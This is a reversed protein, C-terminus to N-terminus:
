TPPVTSATIQAKSMSSVAEAGSQSLTLTPGPLNVNRGDVNVSYTTAGDPTKIIRAITGVMTGQADKVPLGTRFGTTASADAGPPTAAPPAPAATSKAPPTVQMNAPKQQALAGSAGGLALIAACAIMMRM